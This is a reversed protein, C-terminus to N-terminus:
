LTIVVKGQHEGSRLRRVLVPTYLDPYVSQDLGGLFGVLSLMGRQVLSNLSQKATSPGVNEIAVDVGRDNTLRRVEEDWNPTSKYNITHVSPHLSRAHALKADSSSTIIPQVGAAICLLLAFMSVGGTRSATRLLGEKPVRPLDMRNNRRLNRMGWSLHGPLKVLVKEHFVEFERLVGDVDGGLAQPPEEETGTLNTLDWIPTVHDGLKFQQVGSGLAVVEGACDSTPIGRALVDIPYKNELMAIDRYNLSVAHIRIAFDHSGLTPLTETVQEISKGDATRRYSQYSQPLAM